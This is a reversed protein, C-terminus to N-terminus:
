SLSKQLMRGLYSRGGASKPLPRSKKHAPPKYNFTPNDLRDSVAQVNVPDPCPVRGFQVFFHPNGTDGANGTM